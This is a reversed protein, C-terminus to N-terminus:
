LRERNLSYYTVDGEDDVIAYLIKKRVSQAVRVDGSIDSVSFRAHEPVVRVLFKSHSEPPKEGKEYVRFHAGFKLGTRVIYGRGRLDSYAAYKLPLLKDKKSFKAMLQNFDLKEGREYVELKGKEVLFLTEVPALQLKGDGLLKGFFGKQYIRNAALNDAVIVRDGCLEGKAIEEM